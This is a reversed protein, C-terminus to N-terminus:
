PFLPPDTRLKMFESHSQSLFELWDERRPRIGHEQILHVIVQEFSIRGTPFHLHHLPVDGRKANIHLHAHPYDDKPTLRYEYRFVWQEEDAPNSSLSYRYGCDEVIVRGSVVSVLQHLHLFGYPSLRLANIGGSQFCTIYRYNIIVLRSDTIILNCVTNLYDVYDQLIRSHTVRPM